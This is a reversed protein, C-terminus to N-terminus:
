TILGRGLITMVAIAALCGSAHIRATLNHRGLAIKVPLAAKYRAPILSRLIVSISTM